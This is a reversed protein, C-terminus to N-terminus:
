AIARVCTVSSCTVDATVDRLLLLAATNLCKEVPSEKRLTTGSFYSTVHSPSHICKVAKLGIEEGARLLFDSPSAFYYNIKLNYHYNYRGGVKVNSIRYQTRVSYKSKGYSDRIFLSM